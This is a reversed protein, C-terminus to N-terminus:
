VSGVLDSSLSAIWSLAPLSAMENLVLLSVHSSLVASSTLSFPMFDPYKNPM